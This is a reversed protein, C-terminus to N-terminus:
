YIYDNELFNLCEFLKSEGIFSKLYCLLAACKVENVAVNQLQTARLRSIASYHTSLIGALQWSTTAPLVFRM